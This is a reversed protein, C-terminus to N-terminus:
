AIIAEARLSRFTEAIGQRVTMHQTAVVLLSAGEDLAFKREAATWAPMIWTKGAGIAARACRVLDLRDEDNFAYAGRGRALALDSPGLFLGDVTNLEVIREVDHLCEATEVLAYCKTSDNEQAFAESAPRTYKFVRGGAYSRTGLMPYKAARTVKRAHEVDLIHPVIVGGSGFDLAQQIAESTPGLVKTLTKLGLARSFALFQDLTALDFTGHELELVLSTMGLNHAIEVYSTNPQSMWLAINHM